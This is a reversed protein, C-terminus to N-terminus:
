AWRRFCAGRRRRDNNRGRPTLDYLCGPTIGNAGYFTSMNARRLPLNGSIVAEIRDNRLLYDGIIGDAEKGRPLQDKNHAGIELAEPAAFAAASLICSILSVSRPIM